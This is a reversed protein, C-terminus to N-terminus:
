ITEQGTQDPAPSPKSVAFAHPRERAVRALVAADNAARVLLVSYDGCEKVEIEYLTM